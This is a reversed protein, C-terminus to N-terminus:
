KKIKGLLIKFDPGPGFQLQEQQTHLITYNGSNLKEKLIKNGASGRDGSLFDHMEVDYIIRQRRWGAIAIIVSAVSVVLAFIEM